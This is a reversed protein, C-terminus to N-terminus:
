FFSSFFFYQLNQSLCVKCLSHLYTYFVRQMCTQLEFQNSCRVGFAPTSPEFGELGAM